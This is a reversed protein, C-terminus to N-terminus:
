PLRRARLLPSAANGVCPFQTAGAAFATDGHAAAFTGSLTARAGAATGADGGALRLLAPVRPDDRLAHGHRGPLPLWTAGGGAAAADVREWAGGRGRVDLVCSAHR